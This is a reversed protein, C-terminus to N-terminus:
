LRKKLLKVVEGAQARGKMKKMVSGMLFNLAKQNGSKYDEVPRPNEKIAEGVAKELAGTDSVTGLNEKKVIEKPSEGSDMIRQLLKKAVGDTIKKSSLLGFLEIILEKTLKTESLEKERYNLQALVEECIWAAALKPDSTKSVREFTDAIELDKTLTKAYKEPIKYQSVFREQKEIPREPLKKSLEKVHQEDLELPPLDPDPIYRYDAADEKKRLLYTTGSDADFGRTEQVIKQGKDLKEKQRLIEYEIAQVISRVSNVNKVEVRSSDDTSVNVDARVIGGVDHATGSYEILHVLAKMFERAQEASTMDPASVIEILPVGCRNYDVQKTSLNFQGPDEELHVEWIGVDRFKGKEGIPESTIQYGKPLDPYNYHKRKMFRKKTVVTCNLLQAIMIVSDLARQNIPMPKCGPMGTCVPCVLSNPEEVEFYNTSCECFLKKETKLPIHIELGIRNM